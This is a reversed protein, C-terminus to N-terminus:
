GTDNTMRLTAITTNFPSHSTQFHRAAVFGSRSSQLSTWSHLLDQLLSCREFITRRCSPAQGSFLRTNDRGFIHLWKWEPVTYTVLTVNNAESSKTATSNLSVLEAELDVWEIFSLETKTMGRVTNKAGRSRLWLERNEKSFNQLAHDYSIPLPRLAVVLPPMGTKWHCRFYPPSGSPSEPTLLDFIKQRIEFPLRDWPFAAVLKSAPSSITLDIISQRPPMVKTSPSPSSAIVALM